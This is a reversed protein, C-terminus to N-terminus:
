RILQARGRTFRKITHAWFDKHMNGGQKIRNFESETVTKANNLKQKLNYNHWESRYHLRQQDVTAFSTACATCCPIRDLDEVHREQAVTEVKQPQPAETAKDQELALLSYLKAIPVRQQSM